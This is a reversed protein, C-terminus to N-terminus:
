CLGRILGGEMWAGTAAAVVGVGTRAGGSRRHSPTQLLWLGLLPLPAGAPLPAIMPSWIRTMARHNDLTRTAKPEVRVRPAACWSRWRLPLGATRALAPVLGQDSRSELRAGPRLRALAVTTPVAQPSARLPLPLGKQESLHQCFDADACRWVLTFINYGFCSLNEYLFGQPHDDKPLGEPLRERWELGEDRHTRTQGLHFGTPRQLGCCIKTNQTENENQRPEAM